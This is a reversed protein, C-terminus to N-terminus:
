TLSSLPGLTGSLVADPGHQGTPHGVMRGHGLQLLSDLTLAAVLLVLLVLLVVPPVGKVGAARGVRNRRLASVPVGRCAGVTQKGTVHEHRHGTWRAVV